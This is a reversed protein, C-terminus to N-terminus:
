DFSHLNLLSIQGDTLCGISTLGDVVKNAERYIHQVRVRWKNHLLSGIGNILNSGQACGAKNRTLCEILVTSDIHPKIMSLNREKAAREGPWIRIDPGQESVNVSLLNQLEHMKWIGNAVFDAVACDTLETPITNVVNVMWGFIMGFIKVSRGIKM